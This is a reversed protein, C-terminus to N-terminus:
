TQNKLPAEIKLPFDYTVGKELAQSPTYKPKGILHHGFELIWNKGTFDELPSIEEVARAIGEELFQKYSDRQVATLDLPPLNSTEKNWFIRSHNIKPKTM